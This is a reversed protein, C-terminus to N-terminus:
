SHNWTNEHRQKGKLAYLFLVKFCWETYSITSGSTDGTNSNRSQVVQIKTDGVSM